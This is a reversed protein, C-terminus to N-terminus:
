PRGLKVHAVNSSQPYILLGDSGSLHLREDAGLRAMLYDRPSGDDRRTLVFQISTGTGLGRPPEAYPDAFTDSAPAEALRKREHALSRELALIRRQAWQPLKAVRPDSEM